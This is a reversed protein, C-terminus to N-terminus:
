EPQFFEEFLNESSGLTMLEPFLITRNGQVLVAFPIGVRGFGELFLAVEPDRQTWDVYYIEAEYQDLLRQFANTRIVNIENFKCTLCWDATIYFFFAENSRQYEQFQSISIRQSATATDSGHVALPQQAAYFLSIVIFAVGVWKWRSQIEKIFFLILLLGLLTVFLYVGGTLKFLISLLWLATLLLLYALIHKLRNMWAGPKPLFKVTRPEVAFLLYPTALGLGMTLFLIFLALTGQTLAYTLAAGLFPASCPTALLTAFVGEAFAGSNKSAVQNLSTPARIHFLSLLNLAFFFIVLTMFLIFSANQFQFGWGVAHGFSKLLGTFVGLALFSVLIGVVTLLSSRRVNEASSSMSLLSNAKLVLVPLVCPMLNLILGGLFAFWLAWVFDASFINPKAERKPLKLTLGALDEAEISATLEIEELEKFLHIQFGSIANQEALAETSLSTAEWFTSLENPSYLFLEDVAHELFFVEFDRSGNWHTRVELESAPRPVSQFLEHLQGAHRSAKQEGVALRLPLKFSEPICVDECILFNFSIEFDLLSSQELSQSSELEVLYFAEDKYGFSLQQRGGLELDMEILSPVPFQIPGAQWTEPLKWVVDSPPLGLDGPNKWYTYWGPSLEVQITALFSQTNPGLESWESVLRARAEGSRGEIWPSESALLSNGVLGIALCFVSAFHRFFRSSLLM